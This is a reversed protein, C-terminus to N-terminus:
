PELAQIQLLAEILESRRLLEIPAPLSTRDIPYSRLEARLEEVSREDWPGAPLQPAATTQTAPRPATTATSSLQRALEAVLEALAVLSGLLSGQQEPAIPRQTTTFSPM